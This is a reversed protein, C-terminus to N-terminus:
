RKHGPHFPYKHRKRNTSHGSLNIALFFKNQYLSIPSQNQFNENPNPKNNNQIKSRVLINKIKSVYNNSM